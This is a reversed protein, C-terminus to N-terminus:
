RNEVKVYLYTHRDLADLMEGHKDLFQDPIEEISKCPLSVVPTYRCLDCARGFIDALEEEANRHVCAMADFWEM